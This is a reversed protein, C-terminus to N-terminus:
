GCSVWTGDHAMRHLERRTVQMDHENEDQLLVKGPTIRAATSLRFDASAVAYSNDRTWGYVSYTVNKQLKPAKGQLKWGGAPDDVRFSTSRGTLKPADYSADEIGDAGGDHYITAGDPPTPGCWALVVFLHGQPDVSIGALGNDIVSCGAM